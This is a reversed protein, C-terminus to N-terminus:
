QRPDFARQANRPELRRDFDQAVAVADRVDEGAGLTIRVEREAEHVRLVAQPLHLHVPAGAGAPEGLHEARASGASRNRRV